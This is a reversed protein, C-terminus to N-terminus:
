KAKSPQVDRRLPETRTWRSGFPSCGRCAERGALKGGAAEGVPLAAFPGRCAWRRVRGRAGAAGGGEARTRAGHGIGGEVAEDDAAAGGPEGGGEVESAEAAADEQDIGAVGAGGPDRDGVVDREEGVADGAAGHEGAHSLVRLAVAGADDGAGDRGQM